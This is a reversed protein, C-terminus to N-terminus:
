RRDGMLVMKSTVMRSGAQLRLFYTGSAVRSGREDRADWVAELSGTGGVDSRLRRVLRGAVDYVDLTASQGGPVAYRITTSKSAPNPWVAEIALGPVVLDVKGTSVPGHWTQDGSADTLLLWYDCPGSPASEDVIQFDSGGGFVVTSLPERASGGVSRYAEASYQSVDASFIWTVTVSADANRETLFEQTSVPTPQDTYFVGYGYSGALLNGYENFGLKQVPVHSLGGSISFWSDGGDISEFVLGGVTAGAFLAGTPNAVITTIRSDFLSTDVSEWSAGDDMSRHLRFYPVAVFMVDGPMSLIETVYLSPLGNNLAAWSDGNDQSRYVGGGNLAALLDGDDEVVIDVVSFDPLGANAPLWTVGKDPSRWVGGEFIAGAYLEGTVPHVAMSNVRQLGPTSPTPSWSDGGDSSQYIQTTWTGCFLDGDPHSVVDYVIPDEIGNNAPEWTLGRDTSRHVGAGYTAAFNDGTGTLLLSNITTRNMGESSPTWNAGADGTRFVGGGGCAALINPGGLFILDVVARLEIGDRAAAWNQGADGSVFTGSSSTGTWLLGFDDRGITLCFPDDLGNSIQTWSSGYWESRFIGGGWSAAYVDGEPVVMLGYIGSATLGTPFNNWGTGGNVSRYVHNSETGIFLPGGDPVVAM